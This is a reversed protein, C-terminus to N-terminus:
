NSMLDLYKSTIGKSAITLVRNRKLTTRSMEDEPEDALAMEEELAVEDESESDEEENFGDMDYGDEGEGLSGVLGMERRRKRTDIIKAGRKIM